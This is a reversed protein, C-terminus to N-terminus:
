RTGPWCTSCTFASTGEGEPACSGEVVHAFLHFPKGLFAPLQVATFRHLVKDQNPSIKLVVALFPFTPRLQHEGERTSDAGIQRPPSVQPIESDEEEGMKETCFILLASILLHKLPLHHGCGYFMHLISSLTVTEVLFVKPM